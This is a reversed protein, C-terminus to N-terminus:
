HIDLIHYGKLLPARVCLFPACRKLMYILCHLVNELLSTQRKTAIRTGVSFLAVSTIDCFSLIFRM